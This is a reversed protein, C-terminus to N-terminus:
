VRYYCGTSVSRILDWYERDSVSEDHGVPIHACKEGNKEKSWPGSPLCNSKGVCGQVFGGSGEGGGGGLCERVRGPRTHERERERERERARESESESV